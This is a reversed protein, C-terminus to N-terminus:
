ATINIHQGKGPVSSTPHLAPNPHSSINVQAVRATEQAKQAAARGTDVIQRMRDIMANAQTAQSEGIKM